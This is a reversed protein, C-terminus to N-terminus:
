SPGAPRRLENLYLAFLALSCFPTISTLLWLTLPGAATWGFRELYPGLGAIPAQYIGFLLLALLLTVGFRRQRLFTALLLAAGPYQLLHYHSWCIPSAALSLSVLAASALPIQWSAVSGRTVAYLAIFGLLLTSAAVALSVLLDGEPVRLEHINNGFVWNHPLPGPSVPPDLARLVVAPLSFNFLAPTGM